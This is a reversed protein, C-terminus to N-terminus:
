LTAWMGFNSLLGLAQLNPIPTFTGNNVFHEYIGGAAQAGYVEGGATAMAFNRNGTQCTYPISAVANALTQGDVDTFVYVRTNLLSGTIVNGNPRIRQALPGYQANYGSLFTTLTFGDNIGAPTLILYASPADGHCSHCSRCLRVIRDPRETENM